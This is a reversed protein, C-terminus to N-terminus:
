GDINYPPKLYHAILSNDDEYIIKRLEKSNYNLQPLTEVNRWYKARNYQDFYYFERYKSNKDKLAEKVWSHESGTYNISVDIIIKINNKHLEQVM